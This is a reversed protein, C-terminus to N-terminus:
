KDGFWAKCRQPNSFKLASIAKEVYSLDAYPNDRWTSYVRDCIPNFHCGVWLSGDGQLETHEDYETIIANARILRNPRVGEDYCDNLFLDYVTSDKWQNLVDFGVFSYFKGFYRDEYTKKDPCVGIELTEGTKWVFFYKNHSKQIEIDDRNKFDVVKKVTDVLHTIAAFDKRLIIGRCTEGFGLGVYKLYSNILTETAGNYRSGTFLLEKQTSDIFRQQKDNAAKWFQETM